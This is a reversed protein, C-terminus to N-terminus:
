GGTETLHSPTDRDRRNTGMVTASALVVCAM